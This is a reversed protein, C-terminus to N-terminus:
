RSKKLKRTVALVSSMPAVITARKGDIETDFQCGTASGMEDGSYWSDGRWVFEYADTDFSKDLVPYWVQGINVATVEDM